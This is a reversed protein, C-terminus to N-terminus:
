KSTKAYGFERVRYSIPIENQFGWKEIWRKQEDYKTIRFQESRLKEGIANRVLFFSENGYEDYKFEYTRQLENTSTYMEKKIVEGNNNHYFKEVKLMENNSADHAYKIQIDKEPYEYLYYSLLTDYMDYYESRILQDQANYKLIERNFINGVDDLIFHDKKIGNDYIYSESFTIKDKIFEGNDNNVSYLDLKETRPHVIHASEEKCAIFSLVLIIPGLYKM